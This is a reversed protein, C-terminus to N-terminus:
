FKVMEKTLTIVEVLNKAIQAYEVNEPDSELLEYISELQQTFTLLRTQLERLSVEEVSTTM